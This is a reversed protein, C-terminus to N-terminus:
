NPLIARLLPSPTEPDDADTVMLVEIGGDTVRADIGEVKVILDLPEVAGLSGDREIIGVASGYTMGDNLASDSDETSAAFVIRGDPVASADSFCLRVGQLQGLDVHDVNRLADAPVVGDNMLAEFTRDLSLNILANDGGENGRQMLWLTRDVVEAGEVNLGKVENKLEDFLPKLDVTRHDNTPHGDASLPILAGRNRKDSSGSGVALLCGHPLEDTPPLLAISELDAKVKKRESQDTPLEGELIPMFEGPGLEKEDVVLLSLEDDAVIFIYGGHRVLGSAASIHPPRDDEKSSAVTLEHVKEVPIM